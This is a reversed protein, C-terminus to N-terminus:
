SQQWRGQGHRIWRMHSFCGFGSLWPDVQFNSGTLKYSDSKTEPMDWGLQALTWQFWIYISSFKGFTGRSWEELLM